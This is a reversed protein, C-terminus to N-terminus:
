LRAGLSLVETFMEQAPSQNTINFQNAPTLSNIRSRITALRNAHSRVSTEELKKYEEPHSIFHQYQADKTDRCCYNRVFRDLCANFRPLTNEPGHGQRANTYNEFDEGELLCRFSTFYEQPTFQLDRSRQKYVSIIHLFM